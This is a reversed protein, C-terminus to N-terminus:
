MDVGEGPLGRACHWGVHARGAWTRRVELGALLRTVHGAAEGAAAAFAAQAGPCESTDQPVRTCCRVAEALVLSCGSVTSNRSELSERPGYPVNPAAMCLRMEDCRQESPRTQSLPARSPSVASGRECSAHQELLRGVRLQWSGHTM